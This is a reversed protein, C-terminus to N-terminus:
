ATAQLLHSLSHFVGTLPNQFVIRRQVLRELLQRRLEPMPPLAQGAARAQQVYADAGQFFDVETLVSLCAAGGAAYSSAIDDPRFDERLVGKSPSAKKAEAIRAERASDGQAEVGVASALCAIVVASIVLTRM